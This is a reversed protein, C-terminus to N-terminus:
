DMLWDNQKSRALLILMSSLLSVAAKEKVPGYM